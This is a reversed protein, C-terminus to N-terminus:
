GDKGLASDIQAVLSDADEMITRLSSREDMSLQEWMAVSEMIAERADLLRTGGSFCLLGILFLGAILEQQGSGDLQRPRLLDVAENVVNLGEDISGMAGFTAGLVRLSQALNVILKDQDAVLRRYLQVAEAAAKGAEDLRQERLLHSAMEHLAHALRASYLGPALEEVRRYIDVARQWEMLGEPIRSSNLLVSARNGRVLAFDAQLSYYASADDAVDEYIAVAEDLADLADKSQELRALVTGFNGLSRALSCDASASGSQALDRYIILAAQFSALADDLRGVEALRIGRNDLGLALQPRYVEPQVGSLRTLIKFVEESAVVADKWRHVAALRNGMRDISDALDEEYLTSDADSLRRFLEVSETAANLGDSDRGVSGLEDGYRALATALDAGHRGFDATALVRYLMVAEDSSSLADQLRGLERLPRGINMLTSALEPLYRDRDIAALRRRMRLAEDISDFAQGWRGLSALITGMNNLSSALSADVELSTEEDGQSWGKRRLEVAESILAVAEHPHGLRFKAIALSSLARDLENETEPSRTAAELRCLQVAEGAAADAECWQKKTVFFNARSILGAIVGSRFGLHRQCEIVDDILEVSDHGMHLLWRLAVDLTIGLLYDVTIERDRFSGVAEDASARQINPQDYDNM